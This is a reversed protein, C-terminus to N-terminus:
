IEGGTMKQLYSRLSREEIWKNLSDGIQFIFGDLALFSAIFLGGNFALSNTKIDSLEFGGNSSFTFFGIFIFCLLIWLFLLQVFGNNFIKRM